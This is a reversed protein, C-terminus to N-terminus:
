NKNESMKTEKRDKFAECFYKVSIKSSPQIPWFFLFPNQRLDRRDWTRGSTTASHWEFSQKKFRDGGLTCMMDVWNSIRIEVYKIKKFYM